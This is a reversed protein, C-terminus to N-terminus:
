VLVTVADREAEFVAESADGLDEGDAQLPLPQDCRVVIRDADHLRLLRRGGRGRILGALTDAFTAPTVISPAALDLGGDLRGRGVRLPVPGAYTFPDAKAVLAFAARGLGEVELVPPFSLRREILMRVLELVFMANGARRGKASRGRRDIRRVLEADIGVGSSFAFRRGNVRGLSIRRSRGAAL